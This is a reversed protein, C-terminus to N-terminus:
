PNSDWVLCPHICQTCKNQTQTTMYLYRGQSPSIGRGLLGLQTYIVFSLFRNPDMLATSGYISLYYHM